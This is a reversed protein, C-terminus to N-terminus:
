AAEREKDAATRREWADLIDPRADVTAKVAESWTGLRQYITAWSPMDARGGNAHQRKERLRTYDGRVGNPGIAILADAFAAVLEKDDLTDTVRAMRRRCELEDILGAALLAQPWSDLRDVVVQPGPFVVQRGEEMARRALHAVRKRYDQWRMRGGGCDPGILRLAAICADTTYADHEGRVLARSGPAGSGGAAHIAQSWSGFAKRFVHPQLCLRPMAREGIPKKMEALAWRRHQAQTVYDLPKTPDESLAALCRRLQTRLEERGFAGGMAAMRRATANASPAQGLARQVSSWNGGLWKRVSSVSPWSVQRQPDEELWRQYERESLPKNPSRAGDACLDDLCLRAADLALRGKEDLDGEIFPALARWVLLRDSRSERRLVSLLRL